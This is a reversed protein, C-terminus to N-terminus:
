HVVVVYEGAPAGDNEGYTSLAFSGDEGVEAGPRPDKADAPENVPVFLVFAGAAPKDNVFLQGKVPHVPKQGATPSSPASCAPVFGFLFAVFLTPRSIMNNVPPLYSRVRILHRLGLRSSNM